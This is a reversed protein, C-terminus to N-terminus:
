ASWDATRRISERLTITPFCNLREKVTRTDPVYRGLSLSSSRAAIKIETGPSLEDSVEMALESIRIAQASGVNYACGARGKFLMTWLWIALDSAYLYSRYLTGDGKVQIPRGAMADRIFNGIAFHADLPLHPGVFAFCRAVVTELGHEKHFISCLLEGVRKGEGYASSPDMTDPGGTYGEPIHTMEPPQKGYVAGSSVFLFRQVGASVAFELTRTTGQVITELMERPPIPSGSTTGAHICHTFNGAPFEFHRVDGQHLQISSDSALHPAKARFAAPDRTLGVLEAGLGLERNAFAFTELLWMGFFGTAGTVFLRGGRLAEWHPRTHELVHALDGPPLPKTPPTPPPM